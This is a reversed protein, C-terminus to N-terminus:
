SHDAHSRVLGFELLSTSLKNTLGVSETITEPWLDVKQISVMLGYTLFTYGKAVM